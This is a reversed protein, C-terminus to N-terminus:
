LKRPLGRVHKQVRGLFRICLTRCGRPICDRAVMKNTSIFNDYGTPAPQFSAIKEDLEKVFKNWYAKKFNFRRKFPVNQPMIVPRCKLMIPRHQAHPTPDHFIKECYGAVSKTAFILDTNYGREWRGSNFSVPQKQNHILSMNKVKAWSELLDETGSTERYGRAKRHCNFNGIIM